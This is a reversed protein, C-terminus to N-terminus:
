MDIILEGEQSVEKEFRANPFQEEIMRIFELGHECGERFLLIIYWQFWYLVLSIILLREVAKPILPFPMWTQVSLHESSLISELKGVCYMCMMYTSVRILFYMLYIRLCNKISKLGNSTLFWPM